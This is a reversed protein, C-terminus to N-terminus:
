VQGDFGMLWGSGHAIMASPLLFKLLFFFWDTQLGPKTRRPGLAVRPLWEDPADM